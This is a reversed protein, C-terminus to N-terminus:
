GNVPADTLIIHRKTHYIELPNTINQSKDFLASCKINCSTLLTM